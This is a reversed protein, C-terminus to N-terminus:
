PLSPGHAICRTEPPEPPSVLELRRYLGQRRSRLMQSDAAPIWAGCSGEVVCTDGAEVDYVVMHDIASTYLHLTMLVEDAGGDAMSHVLNPGCALVHGSFATESLVTDMTSDNVRWIQHAAQGRLVRVAGYAGGHDHPACPTDRTWTAVMVELMEDAYVVQRGYPKSPDVRRLEALLAPALVVDAAFDKLHRLGLGRTTALDHCQQLLATRTAILM